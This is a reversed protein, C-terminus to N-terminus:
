RVAPDPADPVTDATFRPVPSERLAPVDLRDVLAALRADRRMWALDTYRMRLCTTVAAEAEVVRDAALAFRARAHHVIAHESTEPAGVEQWRARAADLEGADLHALALAARHGDDLKDAFRAALEEAVERREAVIATVMADLLCARDRGDAHVPAAIAAIARPFMAFAAAFRGQQRLADLLIEYYGEDGPSALLGERARLEAGVPDRAWEHAIAANLLVDVAGDHPLTAGLDLFAMADAVNTQLYTTGLNYIPAGVAPFMRLREREGRRVLAELPNVPVDAPMGYVLESAFREVAVHAPLEAGALRETGVIVLKALDPSGRVAWALKAEDGFAIVLERLTPMPSRVVVGSLTLKALPLRAIADLEREAGDVIGDCVVLERVLPLDAAVLADIVEGLDLDPLGDPEGPPPFGVQIAVHRVFRVLPHAFLAAVAELTLEPDRRLRVEDVFGYRWGLYSRRAAPLAEGFLAAGHEAQHDITAGRLEVDDPAQELRAHLAIWAGIPDGQQEFWDGYILRLAPDDPAAVIDAELAPDRRSM